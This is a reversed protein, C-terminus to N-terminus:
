GLVMNLVIIYAAVVSALVTSAIISTIGVRKLATSSDYIGTAAAIIAAISLGLALFGNYWLLAAWAALTLGASLWILMKRISPTGTEAPVTVTNDTETKMKQPTQDIKM